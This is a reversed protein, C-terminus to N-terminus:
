EECNVCGTDGTLKARCATHYRFVTGGSEATAIGEEGEQLWELCLACRLGARADRKKAALEHAALKEEDNMDEYRKEYTQRPGTPKYGDGRKAQEAYRERWRKRRKEQRENLAAESQTAHYHDQADVGLRALASVMMLSPPKRLWPKGRRGAKWDEVARLFEGVRKKETKGTNDVGKQQQLHRLKFGM